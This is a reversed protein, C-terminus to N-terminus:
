APIKALEKLAVVLKDVQEITNFAGFSVRALGTKESNLVKHATVACHLGARV